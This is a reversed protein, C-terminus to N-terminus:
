RPDICYLILSIQGLRGCFTNSCGNRGWVADLYVSPNKMTLNLSDLGSAGDVKADRLQQECASSLVLCANFSLTQSIVHM